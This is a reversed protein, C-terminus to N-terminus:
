FKWCDVKLDNIFDFEVFKREKKKKVNKINM